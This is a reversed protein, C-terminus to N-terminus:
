TFNMTFLKGPGSGILVYVHKILHTYYVCKFYYTTMDILYDKGFCEKIWYKIKSPKIIM